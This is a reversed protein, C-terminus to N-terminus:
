TLVNGHLDVRVISRQVGRHRKDAIEEGALRQREAMSLHKREQLLRDNHITQQRRKRLMRTVNADVPAPKATIGPLKIPKAADLQIGSFDDFVIDFRDHYIQIIDATPRM